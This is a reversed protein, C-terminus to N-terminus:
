REQGPSDGELARNYASTDSPDCTSLSETSWQLLPHVPGKFRGFWAVNRVSFDQVTFICASEFDFLKAPSTDLFLVRARYEGQNLLNGPIRCVSRFLGRAIPTPKWGSRDSVHTEFVPQGEATFLEVDIDLITDPVLNWYEIEIRFPTEMGIGRPPGDGGDPAVRVSRVRIRSNGPAEGPENWERGEGDNVQRVSEVYSAIVGAADGAATIRGHDLLIARTCLTTVAQLNHSVFLVTRGAKRVDGMKGLCKRQFAEDGVALVEDVILIEPELHAAVAFALRLYMGSSYHKVATDVFQEVEAFSVIEDFRRVIEARRMGLIAGNMFINERGTLETHFGTGVELLPRVRGRIQVEGSTPETIRALVKLLTSKGAGNRGIIGVTEGASVDFAIERLAWFTEPPTRGALLGRAAAIPHRFAEDLSDRITRYRARSRGGIHYKKGLDRVRLVADSM